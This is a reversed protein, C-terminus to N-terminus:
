RPRGDVKSEESLMGVGVLIWGTTGRTHFELGKSNLLGKEGVLPVIGTLVLLVLTLDM